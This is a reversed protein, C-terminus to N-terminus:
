AGSRDPQDAKAPAPSARKATRPKSAPKKAPKGTEAEAPAPKLLSQAADTVFSAVAGAAAHTAESLASRGGDGAAAGNAEDANSRAKVLAAAAAAAAAVLADAVLQRGLASGFLTDLAGSKRLTKPVKFGAVTKPLKVKDSKAM